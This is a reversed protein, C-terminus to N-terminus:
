GVGVLSALLMYDDAGFGDLKIRTVFRLAVFVAALLTVVVVTIRAEGQRSEALNERPSVPPLGGATTNAAM